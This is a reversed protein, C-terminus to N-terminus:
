DEEESHTVGEEIHLDDVRRFEELFVAELRVIGNESLALLLLHSYVEV